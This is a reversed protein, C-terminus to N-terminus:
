LRHSPCCDGHHIFFVEAMHFLFGHKRPAMRRWSLFHHSAHSGKRGEAESQDSFIGTGGDSVPIIFTTSSMEHWTTKLFKNKIRKPLARSNLDRIEDSSMSEPDPNFFYRFGQVFSKDGKDEYNNLMSLNETM